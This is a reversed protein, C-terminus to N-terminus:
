TGFMNFHSAHAGHAMAPPAAAYEFALGHPDCQPKSRQWKLRLNSYIAHRVCGCALLLGSNLWSASGRWRTACTIASNRAHLRVCSAATM